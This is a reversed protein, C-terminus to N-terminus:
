HTPQIGQICVNKIDNLYWHNWKKARDIKANNGNIWNNQVVLVNNNRLKIDNYWKGNVYKSENIFIWKIINNNQLMMYLLEREDHIINVGFLRKIKHYIIYSYDDKKTLYYYYNNYWENFFIKMKNNSKFLIFGGSLSNYTGSPNDNSSIIDYNNSLENFENLVINGDNFWIADSETVFFTINNQILYNQLQLRKLIMFTYSNDNFTVQSDIINLAIFVINTEINNSKIFKDLLKYSSYDTAIFITQLLVNKSIDNINSKLERNNEYDFKHDLSKIPIIFGFEDKIISSQLINNERYNECLLFPNFRVETYLVNNLYQKEVFEYVVREIMRINGMLCLSIFHLKWYFVDGNEPVIRIWDLLEDKSNFIPYDGSIYKNNYMPSEVYADWLTNERICGELHTHLEVFKPLENDPRSFDPFIGVKPKKHEMSDILDNIEKSTLSIDDDMPKGQTELLYQQRDEKPIVYTEIKRRLPPLETNSLDEKWNTLVKENPYLEKVFKRTKNAQKSRKKYRKSLYFLRSLQSKM